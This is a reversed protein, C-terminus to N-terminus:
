LYLLSSKRVHYKHATRKCYSGVCEVPIAFVINEELGIEQTPHTLHQLGLLAGEVGQLLRPLFGQELPEM